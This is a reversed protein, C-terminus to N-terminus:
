GSREIFADKLLKSQREFAQRPNRPDKMLAIEQTILRALNLVHTDVKSSERKYLPHDRNIYITTEESFTEPGDEGFSDVVCSVGTEGFKIRKIIANPTLKKVKPKKKKKKKEPPTPKEETKIKEEKVGEKKHLVEAASGIGKIEEGIPLAGFPSLDPNVALAKYIRQLAEKLARSVRAGEKKVTLKQLSLKVADMVGGMVSLFSQYEPSDKIFGTRDSTIPLFDANVEGRVRAMAKGWTEMGFLERRVTVQKVKIEIGLDQLTSATEPLIIIEGSIAGFQTGELFPMKHGSLSRPTVTHNNIRVRFHPAKIPTGEIIKTEIDKPEFRKDLGTLIVTTGNQKRFDSSLIELPLQWIDGTKEWQEKDFIVRGVFEDRKTIVEFRKCASLSAFKGIGFQGIRDRNYIPSKPSYLKQQSGINFYQRLGEIDMGSGNDRIEISDESVIIEVLTADADYANNVLERVFEISEAYLREGITIIHSKDITVPIFEPFSQM